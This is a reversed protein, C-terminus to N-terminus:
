HQVSAMNAEHQRIGEHYLAEFNMPSLVVAPFGARTVTDSIVTRLYPFLIDLCTVALMPEIQDQPVNLIQFIGAQTAEVLFVTKDARTATITGTLLVEYLGEKVPEARTNLQVDVKPADTDFFVQPANPMELSIDKVYLKEISFVVQEESM